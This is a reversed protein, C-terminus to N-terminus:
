KGLQVKSFALIEKQTGQPTAQKVFLTQSDAWKVEEPGWTEFEKEWVPRLSDSTVAFLQMGNHLFGVDLDFSSAVLTKGDPALEPRGWTKTKKGTNLNVLLYDLKEYYGVKFVLLASNNLRGGYTYDIYDDGDCSCQETLKVVENNACRITLTSDKKSIFAGDRKLLPADDNPGDAAFGQDALQDYATKEIPTFVVKSGPFILTDYHHLTDSAVLPSVKSASAGGCSTLFIGLFLVGIYYSYRM